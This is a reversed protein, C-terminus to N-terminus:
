QVPIRFDLLERITWIHDTLGEAMAPTRQMWRKNEQNIELRLSKHPKVFNYWAQFFDLANSHRKLIKSCNMSKRVFRALSNRITLNLREIYATNISGGSNVGLLEMVKAPDGFVIDQVVEIVRGNKRKKCVRAYKLSPYPVLVPYPKRGIGAYQPTELFGYVSVLGEEFPDWNDSTFVPIPSDIARRREVDRFLEIADETSREGEFHSIFLRTDTKIATLTYVDGYDEPDDETINM